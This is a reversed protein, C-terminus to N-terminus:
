REKILEVNTRNALPKLCKGYPLGSLEMVISAKVKCRKKKRHKNSELPSKLRNGFIKAKKLEIEKVDFEKIYLM